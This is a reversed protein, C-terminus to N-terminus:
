PQWEERLKQAKAYFFHQPNATIKALQAQAEEPRAIKLYALALYWDVEQQNVTLQELQQIASSDQDTELRAIAQFFETNPDTTDALYQTYGELATQYDKQNFAAHAQKLLTFNSMAEDRMTAPAPPAAYYALFAEQESIGKPRFLLFAAVALALVGAAILGMRQATFFPRVVGEGPQFRSRLEDFETDYASALVSVQASLHTKLRAMLAPDVQLKEDWRKREAESMKGALYAELDKDIPDFEVSM